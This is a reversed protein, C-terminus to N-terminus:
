QPAAPTTPDAGYPWSAACVKNGAGDSLIWRAPANSDDMLRGGAALDAAVRLSVSEHDNLLVFWRVAGVTDMPTGELALRVRAAIMDHYWPRGDGVFRTVQEDGALETFFSTDDQTFPQLTVSMPRAMCRAKQASKIKEVTTLLPKRPEAAARHPNAVLVRDVALTDACPNLPSRM